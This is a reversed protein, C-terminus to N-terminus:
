CTLLLWQTQSSLATLVADESFGSAYVWCADVPSKLIQRRSVVSVSRHDSPSPSSSQSPQQVEPWSSHIELCSAVRESSLCCESLIFKPLAILELGAWWGLCFHCRGWVFKKWVKRCTSTFWLPSLLPPWFCQFSALCGRSTSLRCILEICEAFM